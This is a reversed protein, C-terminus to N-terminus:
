YGWGGPPRPYLADYEAIEAAMIAARQRRAPAEAEFTLSFSDDLEQFADIVICQWRCQQRLAPLLDILQRVDEIREKLQEFTPHCAINRAKIVRDAEQGYAEPSLALQM